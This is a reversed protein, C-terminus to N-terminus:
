GPLMVGVLDLVWASSGPTQAAARESTWRKAILRLYVTLL